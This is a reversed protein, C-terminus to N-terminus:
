RGGARARREELLAGRIGLLFDQVQPTRYDPYTWDFARWGGHQFLLTLEAYLSPAICIRQGSYKTTALIVSDVTVLGPDINACRRPEGRGTEAPRREAARDGGGAPERDPAPPRTEALERELAMTRMKVPALASPDVRRSFCLIQKILGPGMEPEYYPSFDFPYVPGARRVEGFLAGLRAGAKALASPTPALVACSLAAPEAPQLDLPM